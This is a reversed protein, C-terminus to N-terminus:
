AKGRVTERLFEGALRIGRDDIGHGLGPLIHGEAPVGAAKLAALSAAQRGGREGPDDGGVILLVRAGRSKPLGAAVVNGAFAVLAAPSAARRLGTNLSSGAGQSFGVLILRDPTLKLRALEADFFPNMVAGAAIQGREFQSRDSMRALDVPFWAYGTQTRIPGNPSVFSANPLYRQLPAALGFMDNGDGGYGHCLVVLWRAPGQASALRPGDLSPAAAQASAMAALAGMGGLVVTRRMM